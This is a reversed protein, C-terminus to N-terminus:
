GQPPPVEQLHERFALRDFGDGDRALGGRGIDRVRELLEEELQGLARAGAARPRESAELQEVLRDDVALLLALAEAPQKGGADGLFQPALPPPDPLSLGEHHGDQHGVDATVRGNGLIGVRGHQRVLEVLVPGLHVAGDKRLAAGHHLEDAVGDHRDEARWQRLGVV